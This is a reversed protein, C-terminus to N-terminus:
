HQLILRALGVGPYYHGLIEQHDYGDNALGYAGIQSMGRGGHARAVIDDTAAYLSEVIGGKYSLIQGATANVAQQSTNYESIVGKYVQWRQTNGLHFWPSAPRIIHVLAYSRAAIAQAKLAEMPATSHMESGVVSYLYEEIDVYNVALISSGQSVLLMKGRYWRDGLYVLGGASPQIFVVGPLQWDGMNLSSGSPYVGLGQGPSLTKLVNGNRDVISATSSTGVNTSGADTMVAVRIELKPAAYNPPAPPLSARRNVVTQASAQSSFSEQQPPKPKEKKEPEPPTATPPKAKPQEAKKIKEPTPQPSKQILTPPQLASSSAASSEERPQEWKKTPSPIQSLPPLQNPPPLKVTSSESSSLYIMVIPVFACVSIIPVTWNGIGKVIKHLPLKSIM